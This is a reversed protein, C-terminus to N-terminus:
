RIQMEVDVVHTQQNVSHTISFPRPRSSGGGTADLFDKTWGGTEYSADFVQGARLKWAQRVKSALPESVGTLTFQGMFYQPGEDIKMQYHVLHRPVDFEPTPSVRVALYGIRGYGDRIHVLSWQFKDRRAIDGPKLELLKLLDSDRISQNGSWSVGDWNYLLGPNVTFKEIVGQTADVGRPDIMTVQPDSFKVQLYGENQYVEPLGFEAAGKAIVLSYNQKLLPEEAVALLDYGLPGGTVDVEKVPIAIDLVRLTYGTAKGGLSESSLTAIVKATIKREALFHEIASPVQNVMEGGVPLSGDFLPIERQAAATLEADKFWVFNDYSCPLFQSAETIQFEVDLSSGATKYSYGIKAIAGSQFLRDAAADVAAMDVQQGKRLGSALAIQETSFHKLGTASIRNLTYTRPAAPNQGQESLGAFPLVFLLVWFSGRHILPIGM